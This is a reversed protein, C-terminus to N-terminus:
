RLTTIPTSDSGPQRQALVLDPEKAELVKRADTKRNKLLLAFSGTILSARNAFYARRSFLPNQPSDLDPKELDM